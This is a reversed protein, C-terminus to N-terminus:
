RSAARQEKCKQYEKRAADFKAKHKMFDSCIECNETEHGSTQVENPEPQVIDSDDLLCEIPRRMEPTIRSRGEDEM